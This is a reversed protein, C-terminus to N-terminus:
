AMFVPIDLLKLIALLLNVYIGARKTLDYLVTKLLCDVLTQFM